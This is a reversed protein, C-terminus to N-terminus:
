SCDIQGFTKNYTAALDNFAAKLQASAEEISTSRAVTAAINGMESRFADNAQEVQTRQNDSLNARADAIKALDDRIAQVNNQVQDTTATTLTLGKLQDVQKAIDDRASCVQDTAKEEDSQGCATLLGGAALVILLLMLTKAHM